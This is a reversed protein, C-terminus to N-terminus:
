EFEASQLLWSFAKEQSASPPVQHGGEFAILGVENGLGQLIEIVRPTVRNVPHDHIGNLLVVRMDAPYPLKHYKPGGLWGGTSYIGAWPHDIWASYHFARWAGGSSGGMYIKDHDIDVRELIQPFVEKFREFFAAEREPNDGTNRFTACSILIMGSKESADIHRLCFRAAKGGPHFLIMAPKGVPREGHNSPYYIYLDTPYNGRTTIHEFHGNVDRLKRELNNSFEDWEVLWAQDIPSFKDFHIIQEKAENINLLVGGTEPTYDILEAYIQRGDVLSWNRLDTNALIGSLPLASLYLIKLMKM